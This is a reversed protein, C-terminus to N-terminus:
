FCLIFFYELSSYIFLVAQIHIHNLHHNIQFLSKEQNAMQNLNNIM